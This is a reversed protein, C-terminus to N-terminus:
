DNNSDQWLLTRAEKTDLKQLGTQACHRIAEDQSALAETLTPLAEPSRADGILELLWCRLGHDEERAYASILDAVHEPAVQQV